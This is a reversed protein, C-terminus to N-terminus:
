GPVRRLMSPRRPVGQGREVIIAEIIHKCRHAPDSASKRAYDPCTCTWAGAASRLVRYAVRRIRQSGIVYSATFPAPPNTARRLIFGDRIPPRPPLSAPTTYMRVARDLRDIGYRQQYPTITGAM